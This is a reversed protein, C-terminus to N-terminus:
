AGWTKFGRALAAYFEENFPADWVAVQYAQTIGMFQTIEEFSASMMESLIDGMTVGGGGGNFANDNIYQLCWILMDRIDDTSNMWHGYMRLLDSGLAYAETSSNPNGEANLQMGLSSAHQYAMQMDLGYNQIQVQLKDIRTQLPIPM